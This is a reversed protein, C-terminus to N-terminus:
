VDVGQNESRRITVNYFEVNGFPGIVPDHSAIEFITSRGKRPGSTEVYIENCNADKINTIIVNVIANPNDRNSILINSRTRGVLTKQISINANPVVEEKGASGAAGFYCAITKDIVWQKKVDGFADQEVIPYYIDAQLPFIFDTSECIM